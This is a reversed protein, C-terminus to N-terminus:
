KSVKARRRVTKWISAVLVIRGSTSSMVLHFATSAKEGLLKAGYASSHEQQRKSEILFVCAVKRQSERSPLVARTDSRAAHRQLDTLVSFSRTKKVPKKSIEVVEGPVIKTIKRAFSADRFGSDASAKLVPVLWWIAFNVANLPWPRSSRVQIKEIKRGRGRAWNGHM